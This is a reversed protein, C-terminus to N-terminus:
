PGSGDAPRGRHSQDGGGSLTGPCRRLPCGCGPHHQCQVDLLSEPQLLLFGSRAQAGNNGRILYGLVQHNLAADKTYTKLVLQEGEETLSARLRRDASVAALELRHGALTVTGASRKSLEIPPFVVTTAARKQHSEERAKVQRHLSEMKRCYLCGAVHTREEPTFGAELAEALRVPSPCQPTQQSHVGAEAQEPGYIARLARGLDNTSM